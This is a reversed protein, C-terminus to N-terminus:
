RLLYDHPGNSAPYFLESVWFSYPDKNAVPHPTGDPSYVEDHAVRILYGKNTGYLCNTLYNVALRLPFEDRWNVEWGTISVLGPSVSYDLQATISGGRRNSVPYPPNSYDFTSSLQDYAEGDWKVQLYRYQVGEEEHYLFDQFLWDPSTISPRRIAM